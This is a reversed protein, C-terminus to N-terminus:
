VPPLENVLSLPCYDKRGCQSAIQGACLELQLSCVRIIGLLFSWKRVCKAVGM